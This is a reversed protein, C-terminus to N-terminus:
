TPFVSRLYKQNLTYCETLSKGGITAGEIVLWGTWGIEDIAAKVKSFDVKGQGLLFGNEKCHVECIRDRGLQRIEKCIDYGMDTMNCVDYYVQVAPSGVGDLIRLHDDANLWSELGLVVGAKEAQPAIKKLRRIVEKQLDPQGKIDGNGFFALLVVRQKMQAMVDVCDAVWQETAADSAYARSNLVGMALSSIRVGTQRCKEAYEQRVEPKRLDYRPGPEGISVQVGDIGVEKAVDLAAPQQAKGLSWDCASIKFRRQDDAALARLAPTLALAAGAALAERRTLQDHIM